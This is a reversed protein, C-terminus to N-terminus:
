KKPYLGGDKRRNMLEGRWIEGALVTKWMTEYFESEHRESKLMRPNQGIVEGESYGTL